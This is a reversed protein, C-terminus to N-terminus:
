QADPVHHTNLVQSLLWPHCYVSLCYSQYLDLLLRPVLGVLWPQRRAGNEFCLLVLNCGKQQMPHKPLGESNEGEMLHPEAQTPNPRTANVGVRHTSLMLPSSPVLM